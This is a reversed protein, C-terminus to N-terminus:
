RRVKKVPDNKWLFRYLADFLKGHMYCIREQQETEAMDNELGNCLIFNVTAHMAEHAVVETDWTGRAFHMEGLIRPLRRTGDPLITYPAPCTLGITRRDCGDLRQARKAQNVAIAEAVSTKQLLEAGIRYATRESYGARIAAQTANLDVLYEAVFARQKNTLKKNMYKFINYVM